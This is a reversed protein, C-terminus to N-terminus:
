CGSTTGPPRVAAGARAEGRAGAAREARGSLAPLRRPGLRRPPPSSSLGRDRGGRRRTGKGTKARKSGAGFRLQPAPAATRDPGAARHPATPIEPVAAALPFARRQWRRARRFGEARRHVGRTHRNDPSM